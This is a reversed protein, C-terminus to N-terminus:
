QGDKYRAVGAGETAIWLNGELDEALIPLNRAKLSPINHNEFVTFKLGDFRVLSEQSTLWLYGDKTQLIDNVRKQPLGQETKWVQHVYQTIAREPDLSFSIVPHFLVVCLVFNKVFSRM